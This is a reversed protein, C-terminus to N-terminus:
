YGLPLEVATKGILEMGAQYAAVLDETKREESWHDPDLIDLQRQFENDLMIAVHTAISGAGAWELLNNRLAIAMEAVFM